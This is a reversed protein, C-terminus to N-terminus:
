RAPPYRFLDRLIAFPEPPDACVAGGLSDRAYLEEADAHNVAVWNVAARLTRGDRTVSVSQPMAFGAMTKYDGYEITILGDGSNFRVMIPALSENNLFVAPVTSGADDTGFMFCPSEGCFGFGDTANDVGWSKWTAVPEPVMWVFLPSSPFDAATCKAAVNGQFGVATAKEGASWEQRWKGRAFWLHVSVGPYEPFTMEAEWSALPGYSRRMRQALEGDDPTFSFAPVAFALCLILVVSWRILQFL